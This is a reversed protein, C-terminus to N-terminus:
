SVVVQPDIFVQGGSSYKYLRIQFFVWGTRSPNVAVEIYQSWDTIGSRASVAEDSDVTATGTDTGSDMYEATLVLEAATLAFTSQVYFRYTQSVSATAWLMVADRDWAFVGHPDDDLNSQLNSLELLYDAGGSRKDPTPTGEGATVKTVNGMCQFIRHADLVGAHHDSFLAGVRGIVNVGNLSPSSPVIGNRAYIHGCERLDTTNGILSEVFNHSGYRMAYYCGSINTAVNGSGYYMAHNCGSINTAVNGSNYYMAYNCVSINTAINGCGYIM